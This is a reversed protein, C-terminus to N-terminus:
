RKMARIKMNLYLGGDVLRAYGDEAGKIRKQKELASSFSDEKTRQPLLTDMEDLVKLSVFCSGLNRYPFVWRSPHQCRNSSPATRGLLWEIIGTAVSLRLKM